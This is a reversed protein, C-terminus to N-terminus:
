YGASIYDARKFGANFSIAFILSTGNENTMCLVVADMELIELSTGHPFATSVTHVQPDFVM